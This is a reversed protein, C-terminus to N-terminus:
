GADDDETTGIRDITDVVEVGLVELLRVWTKEDVESVDDFVAFVSPESCEAVVVPGLEVPESYGVLKELLEIITDLRDTVDDMETRYKSM